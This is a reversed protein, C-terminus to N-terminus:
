LAENANLQEVQKKIEDVITRYEAMAGIGLILSSFFFLSPPPPFGVDNSEVFYLRDKTGKSSNVSSHAM